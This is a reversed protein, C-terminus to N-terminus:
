LIGKTTPLENRGSKLVAGGIAKGFAKFISEIKHHENKGDAQINLNCRASDSFSKFFHEFMETPMKGVSERMFSAKWVLWPRGGFDVAVQALCDDMPLTFGYRNIGKKSGLAKNVAEGLCLAVDEITHHEDVDLDGEVQLKIDIGGHHAVQNLMHDFFGLGTSIESRGEGDLNVEVEIATEKTKRSIEAKRDKARLYKTGRSKQGSM